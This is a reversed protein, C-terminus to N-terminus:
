VAGRLVPEITPLQLAVERNFEKELAEEVPVPRFPHVRQVV